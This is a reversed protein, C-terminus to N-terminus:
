TAASAGGIEGEGREAVRGVGAVLFLAERGRDGLHVALVEGEDHVDAVELRRHSAQLSAATGGAGPITRSKWWGNTSRAPRCRTSPNGPPKRRAAVVRELAQLLSRSSNELPSRFGRGAGCGGRAGTARVVRLVRAPSCSRRATRRRQVHGAGVVVRAVIRLLEARAAGRHHLPQPCDNRSARSSPRGRDHDEHVRIRPGRRGAVVAAVALQQGRQVRSARLM